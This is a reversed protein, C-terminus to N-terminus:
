RTASTSRRIPTCTAAECLRTASALDDLRVGTQELRLGALATFRGVPQQYSAYLADIWRDFHFADAQGPDFPGAPTPAGQFAMNSQTDDEVKLEYGAKFQASHAMPREYDAKLDALSDTESSQRNDFAGPLPPFLSVDAFPSEAEAASRHLGLSVTLDNDDGGFSRKLSTQLGVYDVRDHTVASRDLIQDM